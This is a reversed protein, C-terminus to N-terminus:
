LPRVRKLVSLGAPALQAFLPSVPYSSMHRVGGVTSRSKAPWSRRGLGTGNCGAGQLRLISDNIRELEAPFLDAVEPTSTTSRVLGRGIAALLARCPWFADRPYSAPPALFALAHGIPGAGERPATVFRLQDSLKLGARFCCEIPQDSVVMGCDEVEYQAHQAIRRVRGV